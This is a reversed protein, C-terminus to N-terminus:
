PVWNEQSDVSKIIGVVRLTQSFNPDVGPALLGPPLKAIEKPTGHQSITMTKGIDLGYKRRMNQDVVVEDARSADAMRGQVIPSGLLEATAQSVPILGGDGEAPKVVIAVAVVFPYVTKVEPLADARARKAADFTPDNVLAAADPLNPLAALYNPLAVST